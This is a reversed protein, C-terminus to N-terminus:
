ASWNRVLYQTRNSRTDEVTRGFRTFWQAVNQNSQGRQAGCMGGPLRPWSLLWKISGYITSSSSTWWGPVDSVHRDPTIPQMRLKIVRCHMTWQEIYRTRYCATRTTRMADFPSMREKNQSIEATSRKVEHQVISHSKACNIKRSLFRISILVTLWILEM